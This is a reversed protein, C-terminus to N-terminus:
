LLGKKKLRARVGEAAPDKQNGKLWDLAARDQASPQPAVSGAAGASAQQRPSAPSAEPGGEM